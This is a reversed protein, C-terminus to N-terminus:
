PHENQNLKLVVFGTGEIRCAVSLMYTKGALAEVEQHISVGNTAKHAPVDVTFTPLGDVRQIKPTAKGMYAKGDFFEWKQLGRKFSGNTVLEQQALLPISLCFLLLVRM